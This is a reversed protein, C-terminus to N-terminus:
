LREPGASTLATPSRQHAQRRRLADPHPPDAGEERGPRLKSMLIVTHLKVGDRMPIMVERRVFDFDDYTPTFEAPM